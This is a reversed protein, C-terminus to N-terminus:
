ALMNYKKTLTKEINHIIMLKSLESTVFNKFTRENEKIWLAIKIELEKNVNVAKNECKISLIDYKLSIPLLKGFQKELNGHVALKVQYNKEFSFILTIETFFDYEEKEKKTFKM